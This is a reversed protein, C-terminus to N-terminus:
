RIGTDLSLNVETYTGTIVTVNVPKGFVIGEREIPLAQALYTGPDVAIRFRGQADTRGMAVVDSGDATTVQVQAETPEDPCPSNEEVVPCQPGLLVVGTIGSDDDGTTEGTTGACSGILITLLALGAIRRM